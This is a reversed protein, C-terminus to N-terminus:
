EERCWRAQRARDDSPASTHTAELSPLTRHWRDLVGCGLEQGVLPDGHGADGSLRLTVPAVDHVPAQALAAVLDEGDVRVRVLDFAVAAIVVQTRYGSADLRDHDSRPRLDGLLRHALAGFEPDLV